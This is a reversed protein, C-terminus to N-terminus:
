PAMKSCFWFLLPFLVLSIQHEQGNSKILIMKNTEMIDLFVLNTQFKSLCDSDWAIAESRFWPQLIINPYMYQLM